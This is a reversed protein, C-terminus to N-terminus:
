SIALEEDDDTHTSFNSAEYYDDDISRRYDDYELYRMHMADSLGSCAKVTCENRGVVLPCHKEMAQLAVDTVNNDLYHLDVTNLNPSMEFLAILHDNTMVRSCGGVSLAHVGGSPVNQKLVDIGVEGNILLSFQLKENSLSSEVKLQTHASIMLPNARLSVIRYDKILAMVRRHCSVFSHFSVDVELGQPRIPCHKLFAEASELTVQDCSMVGARSLHPAARALTCLGADTINKLGRFSLAELCHGSNTAVVELVTDNVSGCSLMKLSVICNFGQLLATLVRHEETAAGGGVPGAAAAASAPDYIIVKRLKAALEAIRQADLLTMDHANFVSTCEQMHRCNTLLSLWGGPSLRGVHTGIRLVKLLPCKTGIVNVMSDPPVADYRGLDKARISLEELRPCSDCVKELVALRDVRYRSFILVLIKLNACSSFTETLSVVSVSFNIRFCLTLSYLTENKRGAVPAVFANLQDFCAHNTVEISICQLNKMEQAVGPGASAVLCESDITLKTLNCCLKSVHWALQLNTGQRVVLGKISQLHREYKENPVLECFTEWHLIEVKMDRKWAWRYYGIISSGNIPSHRQVDDNDDDDEYDRILKALPRHVNTENCDIHKYCNFIHERWTSSCISIDVRAIDGVTCFKGLIYALVEVPLADCSELSPNEQSKGGQTLNASSSIDNFMEGAGGLGTDKSNM